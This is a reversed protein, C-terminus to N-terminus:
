IVTCACVALFKVWFCVRFINPCEANMHLTACFAVICFQQWCKLVKLLRVTVKNGSNQGLDSRPLVTPLAFFPLPGPSPWQCPINEDERSFHQESHSNPNNSPKDRRCKATPRSSESVARHSWSGKQLSCLLWLSSQDQM